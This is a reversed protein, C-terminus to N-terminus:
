NQPDPSQKRGASILSITAIVALLGFALPVGSRNASSDPPQAITSVFCGGGGGGGGAQQPPPNGSSASAVFSRDAGFSTGNANSAVLRFHYTDGDTLGSISVAVSSNASTSYSVTSTGYAATPGYEFYYICATGNANVTGNLKASAATVDTAAATNVEPVIAGSAYVLDLLASQSGVTVSRDVPAASPRAQFVSRTPAQFQYGSHCLRRQRATVAYFGGQDPMATM